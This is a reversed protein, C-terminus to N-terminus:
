FKGFILNGFRFKGMGLTGGISVNIREKIKQSWVSKAADVVFKVATNVNYVHIEKHRMPLSSEGWKIIRM